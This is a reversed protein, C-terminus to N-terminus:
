DLKKHPTPCVCVGPSSLHEGSLHEWSLHEWSLHEQSLHEGTWLWSRCDLSSVAGGTSPESFRSYMVPQDAM